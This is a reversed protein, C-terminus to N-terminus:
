VVIEIGEVNDYEKNVNAWKSMAIIASQERITPAAFIDKILIHTNFTRNINNMLATAKLSHGGLDFFNATASVQSSDMQFLQAWIGALQEEIENAPAEYEIANQEVAPLLKRNIKGNATIPMKDLHVFYAPVMYDPLAALLFAKLAAANLETKAVYYAVLQKDGEEDRVLVVVEDIQEHRCLQHEIEGLTIRFGRIKVQDDIRGKFEVTLDPLLRAVDDTRYLLGPGFPNQIFKQSTLEPSNLYGASVGDGGVYLIG